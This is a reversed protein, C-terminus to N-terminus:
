RLGAGYLIYHVTFEEKTQKFAVVWDDIAICRLKLAALSKNPCIMYTVNPLAFASIRNIFKTMFRTGNGPTNKEEVWSSIELIIEEAEPLFVSENKQLNKRM